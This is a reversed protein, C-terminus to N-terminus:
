IVSVDEGMLSRRHKQFAPRPLSKTFIDAPQNEGAVKYLKVEGSESLEKIRYIRTDIHKARNYMGSGKVLFICANNDQAIPTPLSQRYGMMDMIRRLYVCDLACQSVSYFESETSSIATVPQRKSSWTVAAGNLMLAWGSVSRRDKAGAHDADASASLTNHELSEHVSKIADDQGDRRYTIGLSRTGALYRLVRRAAAIHTPGPNSMFRALQNVAFCCDLRTFCTLYMCAGICQQYNRVVEPDRKDLPPADDASLHSNPEMPTHAPNADSMQFRKLIDSCYKEQSLRVTGEALNQEVKCGLFWQLKGCDSLDFDKQLEGIFKKYMDEDNCAALGDDVHITLLLKCKKGNVTEEKMFTVGDGDLNYFQHQKLWNAFMKNWGAAAQKLGYILKVCKLAKGKPLKYRGPFNLYVEDTCPANLFAGKVDFQYLTLDEQAALACITRVCSFKSTPAFTDGYSGEEQQRGDANFRARYETVNGQSDQKIKFSVCMDMIKHGAPIDETNVIEFTGMELLKDVEKDCASMWLDADPRGKIDYISRPVPRIGAYSKSEDDFAGDCIMASFAMGIILSPSSVRSEIRQLRKGWNAYLYSAKKSISSVMAWATGAVNEHDPDFMQELTKSEGGHNVKIAHRLAQATMECEYHKNNDHVYPPQSHLLVCKYKHGGRVKTGSTQDMVQITWAVKDEKWYEIPCLIKAEIGILYEGLETNNVKHMKLSAPARWSKPLEGYPGPPGHAFVTKHLSNPSVGASHNQTTGAAGPAPHTLPASPLDGSIPPEESLINGNNAASPVTIDTEFRAPIQLLNAPTWTTNHPVAKLQLQHALDSITADPMDNYLVQQELRPVSSNYGYVRQDVLRYPFLQEDFVCDTSAYVRNTRSSYGLFARRGFAMGTGIYVAEEGRPALKGHEVLCAGRHIVMQCGFPRFYSYDPHIGFQKFFPTEDQLSSHPRCNALDTALMAACGWFEPPLQSQLLMARIMKGLSDVCKEVLANQFQQHENSHRIEIVGHKTRLMDALQTTCYEPACDSKIIRKQDAPLTSLLRDLIQPLEDKTKHVFTWMFRSERRIIITCYQCGTITKVKSMDVLDFALDHPNSGTAAPPADQRTINARQCINCKIKLERLGPKIGRAGTNSLAVMKQPNVAHNLRYHMREEELLGTFAGMVQEDDSNTSVPLLYVNSTKILDFTGAPGQVSAGRKSFTSTYDHDAMDSVSVLNYHLTPNYYVDKIVVTSTKGTTNVM